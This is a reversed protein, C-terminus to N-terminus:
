LSSHVHVYKRLRGDYRRNIVVHQLEASSSNGASWDDSWCDSEAATQETFVSCRDMLVTM